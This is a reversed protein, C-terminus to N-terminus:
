PLPQGISMRSTLQPRPCWDVCETGYRQGILVVHDSIIGNYNRHISAILAVSWTNPERHWNNLSGTSFHKNRGYSVCINTFNRTYFGNETFYCKGTFHGSQKKHLSKVYLASGMSTKQYLCHLSRNKSIFVKIYQPYNEM